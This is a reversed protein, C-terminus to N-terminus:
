PERTAAAKPTPSRRPSSRTVASRGGRASLRAQEDLCRGFIAIADEIKGASLGAYGMLLGQRPPAELYHPAISYLGVGLRRASEILAECRARSYGRLWVVVHMGAPSAVVEVRDGAYQELAALLTKRRARLTRAALRLHREFGSGSMFNALAEQESAASGMDSLWKATTFDRQLAEPLVMYGLRLSPFLMKSFTGVYIVRDADDLERLAALPHADYRFEGDYDDEIIWCDNRAAYRLLELRRAPSLVAGGPFQHSPTVFILRPPSAPLRSCDLGEGDTRVPVIRAGHVQMLQRIGFYSPEELVVPSGEDVLVRAALAFAQQAGNVILVDGPVALVGRRRALYDCIAARLAPLGEADPYAIHGRVSARSLERRWANLMAPNTLPEGYQLDYPLGRHLRIQCRARMRRLRRAYRSPSRVKARRKKTGADLMLETVYTGSGVRGEVLGEARLQDYADLVSSRSLGLDAALARTAPLRTGAGLRGALISSKLARVLQAYVAGCGDLELYM